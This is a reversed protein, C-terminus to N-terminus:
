RVTLQGSHSSVLHNHFGWEGTQSPTFQGTEGPQLAEMNLEPNDTHVPHDDSSFELVQSSDNTVTVTGGTAVTYAQEAFGSDTYTITIDTPAESQDTPETQSQTSDPAPSNTKSSLGFVLVLAALIVVAVTILVNKKM